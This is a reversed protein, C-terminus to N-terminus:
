DKEIEIKNNPKKNKPIKSTRTIKKEPIKLTFRLTSKNHGLVTFDTTSSSEKIHKGIRKSIEERNGGGIDIPILTYNDSGYFQDLYPKMREYESSFVDNGEEYFLKM